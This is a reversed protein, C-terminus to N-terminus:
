ILFVKRDIRLGCVDVLSINENKYRFLNKKQFACSNAKSHVYDNNDIVYNSISTVKCLKNLLFLNGEPIHLKQYNKIFYKKYTKNNWLSL